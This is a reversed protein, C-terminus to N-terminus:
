DKPPCVREKSLYFTGSGNQGPAIYNVVWGERQQLSDLFWNSGERNSTGVMMATDVAFGLQCKVALFVSSTLLYSMIWWTFWVGYVVGIWFELTWAFGNPWRRPKPGLFAKAQLEFFLNGLRM